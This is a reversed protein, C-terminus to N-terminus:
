DYENETEWWNIVNRFGICVWDYWMDEANDVFEQIENIQDETLESMEDVGYHEQIQEEAWETLTNEINEAWKHIKPVDFTM